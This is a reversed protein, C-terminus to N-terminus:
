SKSQYRKSEIIVELMIDNISQLIWMLLLPEFGGPLRVRAFDSANIGFENKAFDCHSKRDLISLM